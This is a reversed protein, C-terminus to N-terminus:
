KYTVTFELMGDAKGALPSAETQLYRAYLPVTVTTSGNDPLPGTYDYSTGSLNLVGADSQSRSLQIGIGQASLAQPKLKMAGGAVGDRPSLEISFANKRLANKAIVTTGNYTANTSTGYGSFGGCGELHISADVWGTHSGPGSFESLTHKGMKVVMAKSGTTINCTPVTVTITGTMNIRYVDVMNGSQGLAYTLVPLTSANITGPTVTNDTKVLVLWSYANYGNSWYCNTSTSSGCTGSVVGAGPFNYLYSGSQFGFKVGIGPLGTPYIKSGPSTETPPTLFGYSQYFAGASDCQVSLAGQNALIINQDYVTQNIPLDPTVSITANVPMTLTKATNFLSGSDFQCAANAWAPLMLLICLLWWLLEKKKM